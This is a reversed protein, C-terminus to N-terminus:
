FIESMKLLEVREVNFFTNGFLCLVDLFREWNLFKKAFMNKTPTLFFMQVADIELHGFIVNKFWKSLLHRHIETNRRLFIKTGSVNSAKIQHVPHFPPPPPEVEYFTKCNKMKISINPFEVIKKWYPIIYCYFLLTFMLGNLIYTMKM